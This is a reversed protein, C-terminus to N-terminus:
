IATSIWLEDGALESMLKSRTRRPSTSVLTPPLIVAGTIRFSGDNTLARAYSGLLLSHLASLSAKKEIPEVEAFEDM